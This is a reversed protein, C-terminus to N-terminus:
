RGREQRGCPNVNISNNIVIAKAAIKALRAAGDTRSKITRLLSVFRPPSNVALTSLDRLSATLLFVHTVIHM